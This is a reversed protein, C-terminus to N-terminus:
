MGPPRVGCDRWDSHALRVQWGARVGSSAPAAPSANIAYRLRIATLKGAQMRVREDRNAAMAGDSDREAM